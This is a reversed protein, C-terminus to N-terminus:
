LTNKYVTVFVHNRVNKEGSLEFWAYLDRKMTIRGLFSWFKTHTWALNRDEERLVSSVSFCGTINTRFCEVRWTTQRSACSTIAPMWITSPWRINDLRFPAHFRHVAGSVTATAIEPAITSSPYSRQMESGSFIRKVSLLWCRHLHSFLLLMFLQTVYFGKERPLM